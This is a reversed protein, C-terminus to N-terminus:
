KPKVTYIGPSRGMRQMVIKRDTLKKNIRAAMTLHYRSGYRADWMESLDNSAIGDPGAREIIKLFRQQPPTLQSTVDNLLVHGCQPCVIAM